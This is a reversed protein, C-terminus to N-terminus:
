DADKLVYTWAGENRDVTDMAAMFREDFAAPLIKSGWRKLNM